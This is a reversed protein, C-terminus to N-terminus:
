AWAAEGRVLRVQPDAWIAGGLDRWRRCVAQYDSLYRRTDPDVMSDFVMPAKDAGAGRVDRLSAMLQPYGDSLRQAAARSILLLGPALAEMESAAGAFDHGSALLRFIDEADFGVDADVFLLHSMASRLFGALLGGRARSILAEGGSLETHLPLSRAACATEFALLSRMYVVHAQGGYCPTALYLSPESM